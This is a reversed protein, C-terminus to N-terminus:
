LHVCELHHHPTVAALAEYLEQVLLASHLPHLPAVFARPQRVGSSLRAEYRRVCSEVCKTAAAGVLYLVQVPICRLVNNNIIEVNKFSNRDFNRLTRFQILIYLRVNM